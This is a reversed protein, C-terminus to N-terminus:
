SEAPPQEGGPGGAGDPGEPREGGDGGPGGAGGSAAAATEATPDIQITAYALMTGDSNQSTQLMFDEYSDAPFVTDTESSLPTDQVGHDSYLEHTTCIQETLTDPFCFQSIVRSTGEADSVAFHIHIARGSYWGPFCSKFNVRGDADTTLQGRYWTSQEAAADSATCFDGAFRASDSSNSTDGSYVGQTDCHWVELVHDALPACDTDILQLCLQMPVGTLGTSIDEGTDSHFYCPGETTSANLSVQCADAASFISSAPYAASILNTGGSAWQGTAPLALLGQLVKRRTMPKPIPPDIDLM